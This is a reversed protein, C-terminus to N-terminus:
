KEEENLLLDATDEDIFNLLLKLDENSMEIKYNCGTNKWNKCQLLTVGIGMAGGLLPEYWFSYSFLLRCISFSILALFLPFQPHKRYKLFIKVIFIALASLILIGWFVGFTVLIEFFMNHSYYDGNLLYRDGYAGYGKFISQRQLGRILIDYIRDRGTADAIEGEALKLLTRSQIGLKLATNYIFTLISQSTCILGGIAGLVITAIKYRSVGPEVALMYFVIFCLYGLVCGRSGFFVGLAISLGSIFLYGTKKRDNLYFMLFLIAPFAIQYGFLMNYEEATDQQAPRLFGWSNGIFNIWAIIKFDYELQKLNKQCRIFYYTFPASVFNLVNGFIAWQPNDFFVGRYEPHIKLTGFFIGATLGIVIIGDIRVSGRENLISLGLFLYILGLIAYAILSKSVPILGLTNTLAVKSFLLIIAIDKYMYQKTCDQWIKIIREISGGLIECRM